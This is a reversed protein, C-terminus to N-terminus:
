SNFNKYSLYIAVCGGGNIKHHRLFAPHKEHDLIIGAILKKVFSPRVYLEPKFYSVFATYRAIAKNLKREQRKSQTPEGNGRESPSLRPVLKM